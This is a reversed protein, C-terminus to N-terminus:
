QDKEQAGVPSNSPAAPFPKGVYVPHMWEGEKSGNPYSSRPEMHLDAEVGDSVFKGVNMVHCYGILGANAPAAGANSALLKEVDALKVYEGDAKERFEVWFNRDNKVMGFKELTSLYGPVATAANGAPVPNIVYCCIGDAPRPKGCHGCSVTAVGCPLMGTGVLESRCGPMPCRLIKETPAPSPQSAPTSENTM